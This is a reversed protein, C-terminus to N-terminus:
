GVPIRSLADRLAHIYVAGDWVTSIAIAATLVCVAAWTTAWAAALAAFVDDPIMEPGECILDVKCNTKSSRM